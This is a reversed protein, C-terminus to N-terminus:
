FALRLRNNPMIEALKFDYETYDGFLYNKDIELKTKNYIFRHEAFTTKTDVEGAEVFENETDASSDDNPDGFAVGQSRITDMLITLSILLLSTGFIKLKM